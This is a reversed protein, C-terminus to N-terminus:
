GRPRLTRPTATACEPCADRRQSYLCGCARCTVSNTTTDDSHPPPEGIALEFEHTGVRIRDEDRLLTPGAVRQGNVFTGNRSELDVLVITDGEVLIEAHRRSIATDDISLTCTEDRGITSTGFALEVEHFASRLRVRATPSGQSIARGSSGM